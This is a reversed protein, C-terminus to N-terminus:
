WRIIQLRPDIADLALGFRELAVGVFIFDDRNSLQDTLDRASRRRASGFRLCVPLQMQRAHALYDALAQRLANM